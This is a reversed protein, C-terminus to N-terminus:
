LQDRLEEEDRPRHEAEAVALAGQRSWTVRETSLTLLGTSYGLYAVMVLM